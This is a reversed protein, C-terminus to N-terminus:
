RTARPRPRRRPRRPPQRPATTTPATTTPATTTAATTPSGAEAEKSERGFIIVASLMAVFFLVVITIYVGMHKGPFNPNRRPLVFSSILAFVIFAGGVLGLGLKHGSSLGAVVPFITSLM